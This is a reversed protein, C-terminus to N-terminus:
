SEKNEGNSNKGKWSNEGESIHLVQYTDVWAGKLREKYESGQDVEKEEDFVLFALASDVVSM